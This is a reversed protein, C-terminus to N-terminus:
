CDEMDKTNGVPGLATYLNDQMESVGKRPYLVQMVSKGGRIAKWGMPTARMRVKVRIKMETGVNLREKLEGHRLESLFEVDEMIANLSGMGYQRFRWFKTVSSPPKESLTVDIIHEVEKIHGDDSLWFGEYEAFHESPINAIESGREGISFGISTIAPDQQLYSFMNRRHRQVEGSIM